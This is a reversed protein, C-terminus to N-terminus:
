QVAGGKFNRIRDLCARMDKARDLYVRNRKGNEINYIRAIFEELSLRVTPFGRWEMHIVWGHSPSYTEICLAPSINDNNPLTTPNFATNTITVSM